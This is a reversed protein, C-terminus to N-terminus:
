QRDDPCEAHIRFFYIYVSTGNGQSMRESTGSAFQGHLDKMIEFSELFSISQNGGTHTSPLADRTDDFSEM